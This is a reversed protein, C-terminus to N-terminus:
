WYQVIFENLSQSFEGVFDVTSARAFPVFPM